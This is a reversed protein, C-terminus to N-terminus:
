RQGKIDDTLKAQRMVLLLSKQCGKENSATKVNAIEKSFCPCFFTIIVPTKFHKNSTAKLAKYYQM